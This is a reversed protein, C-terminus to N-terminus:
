AGPVPLGQADILMHGNLMAFPADPWSSLLDLVLSVPRCLRTGLDTTVIPREVLIPRALMAEFIEADTVGDDLLGMDKAPGRVRRLAQSPTLGAAELLAALHARDWGTEVYKVIRPTYGAAEIVRLVDRSKSCAANHYITAEM